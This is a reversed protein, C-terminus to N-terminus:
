EETKLNVYHSTKGQSFVSKARSNSDPATIRRKRAMFPKEDRQNPHYTHYLIGSSVKNVAGLKATRDQNYERRAEQIKFIRESKNKYLTTQHSYPTDAGLVGKPHTRLLQSRSKVLKDNHTKARDRKRQVECEIKNLLRRRHPPMLQEADWTFFKEETSQVSQCVHEYESAKLGVLISSDQEIGTYMERPPPTMPREPVTRAANEIKITDPEVVFFNEDSLELYRGGSAFRNPMSVREPLKDGSSRFQVSREFNTPNLESSKYKRMDDVFADLRTADVATRKAPLDFHGM